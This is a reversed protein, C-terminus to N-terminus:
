ARFLSQDLLVSKIPAKKAQIKAKFADLDLPKLAAPTHEDDPSKSYDPGLKKMPDVKYIDLPEAITFLKVRALRRADYFALKTGDELTLDMKVFRPPWTQQELEEEALEELM